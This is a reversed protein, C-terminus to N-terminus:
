RGGRDDAFSGASDGGSSAAGGGPLEFIDRYLRVLDDSSGNAAARKLHRVPAHLVKQIIAYALERVAEEQEPSLPGLKRRLRDLENRGVGHLRERLAVITPVLERSKSIRGLAELEEEIRERAREAARRREALESDVVGQLADIDYVYVSELDNVAEEVDRPVAMDVIFLPRNRRAKMAQQVDTKRLVPESAGTATVVVDARRILSSLDAWPAATGGVREALALAHSYTRSAVWVSAAGHSVLQRAALEAMKGSGLVLVSRGELSGFIKRALAVAAHGVSVPNHSLGTERRIRKAAAFLRPFIRRFNPGVAGRDLAIRYARRVQGLIQPEGLVMSDLGCAVQLLHRLAEIGEFEYVLPALQESPIGSERALFLRVSPLLANTERGWVVVEVRNCTSLVVAEEIGRGVLRGLLNPLESEPVALRERFAVPASRHNLGALVLM